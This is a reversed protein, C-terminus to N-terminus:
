SRTATTRNDRVRDKDHLIMYGARARVVVTRGQVSGQHQIPPHTYTPLWQATDANLICTRVYGVSRGGVRARGTFASGRVCRFAAPARACVCVCVRMSHAGHLLRCIQRHQGLQRCTAQTSVWATGHRDNWWLPKSSLSAAPLGTPEIYSLVGCVRVVGRGM